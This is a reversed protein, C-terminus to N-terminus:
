TGGIQRWREPTMWTFELYHGLFDRADLYIFKLQDSGGELVVPYGMADVRRRFEGWNDVRMCIHHFKLEDGEPLEDAYMQALGAVPEILEYQLGDVWIFALKTGLKGNGHPTTVDVEVDFVHVKDVGARDRFAQAAKEIDRTIYANQYHKGEIM